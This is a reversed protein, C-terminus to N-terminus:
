LAALVGRLWAAWAAFMPEPEWRPSECLRLLQEYHEVETAGTANLLKALDVPCLYPPQRADELLHATSQMICAYFYCHGIGFCHGLEHSVTKCVRSLWRDAHVQGDTVSRADIKAFAAVFADVADRIPGSASMADKRELGHFKNPVERRPRRGAPAAMELQAKEAEDDHHERVRQEGFEVCHSAPWAHRVDLGIVPDLLPNYRAMSVVCVRDGGYARGCCFEDEDEYLDHELLMVISYADAPIANILVDCMDSLNLQRPFTGDRTPRTRISLLHPSSSDPPNFLLDVEDPDQVSSKLTTKKRGGKSNKTASPATQTATFQMLGDFLKFQVCPGHYFAALYELVGDISVGANGTTSAPDSALKSKGPINPRTWGKMFGVSSDLTPPPVVYVIRRDSTVPNREKLNKWARFTQGGEDSYSCLIDGPLALPAPFTTAVQPKIGQAKAKKAQGHSTTAAALYEPAVRQFKSKTRSFDSVDLQLQAHRCGPNESPDSM